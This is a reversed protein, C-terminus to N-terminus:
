ITKNMSGQRYGALSMTVFSFGYGLLANTIKDASDLVMQRQHPAVEIDACNSHLRVRVQEFGMDLLFQEANGIKELKEDTIADGYEIRTALCAFSQKSHTPLNHQASLERIEAKTLGAEQLPSSVGLEKIAQMGPRYDNLDDLNSGEAIWRCGNAKAIYCIGKFLAKKCLYCRNPPNQAFGPIDLQNIDFMVQKVGLQNCIDQAESKEREPFALSCATITVVNDCGLADVCEKLLLTSDVGGSFAVAVKGNGKISETLKQEKEYLKM